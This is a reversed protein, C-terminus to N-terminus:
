TSILLNPTPKINFHATIFRHLQLMLAHVQDKDHKECAQLIEASLEVIASEEILNEEAHNLYLAQPMQDANKIFVFFGRNLNCRPPLKEKEKLYEETTEYCKFVLEYNGAPSPEQINLEPDLKKFFALAAPHTHNKSLVYSFCKLAAERNKQHYAIVGCTMAMLSFEEWSARSFVQQIRQLNNELFLSLGKKYLQFNKKVKSLDEQAQPFNGKIIQLVAKYFRACENEPDMRLAVEFFMEAQDSEGKFFMILGRMAFVLSRQGQTLTSCDKLKTCNQLNDDLNDASIDLLSQVYIQVTALLAEYSGNDAPIKLYSLAKRYNQECGNLGQLYNQGLTLFSREQHRDQLNTTLTGAVVSQAPMCVNPCLSTRIITSNWSILDREHCVSYIFPIYIAEQMIQGQADSAQQKAKKGLHAVIRQYHIDPLQAKLGRLKGLDSSRLMRAMFRFDNIKMFSERYEPKLLFETMDFNGLLFFIMWDLRPDYNINRILLPIFIKSRFELDDARKMLISFAISKARYGLNPNEIIASIETLIRQPNYQFLYFLAELASIVLARYQPGSSKKVIDLLFSIFQGKLEQNEESRQPTNVAQNVSRYYWTSIHDKWDLGSNHTYFMKKSTGCLYTEISKLKKIFERIKSAEVPVGKAMHEFMANRKRYLSSLWQKAMDSGAIPYLNPNGLDVFLYDTSSGDTKIEPLIYRNTKPDRQPQRLLMNDRKLIEEPSLDTKEFIYEKTQSVAVAAAESKNTQVHGYGPYRDKGFHRKKVLGYGANRTNEYIDYSILKYFTNKQGDLQGEANLPKPLAMYVRGSLEQLHCASKFFQGLIAKLRGTKYSSGDHPCNFHICDFKREGLDPHTHLAQADVSFLLTVSHQRLFQVHIDFTRPYKKKLEAESEYATATIVHGINPHSGSHKRVLACAFSFDGEGLLLRTKYPKLPNM